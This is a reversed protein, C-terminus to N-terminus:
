RNWPDWLIYHQWYINVADARGSHVVTPNVGAINRLQWSWLDNLLALTMNWSSTFMLTWAVVWIIWMISVHTSKNDKKNDEIMNTKDAFIIAIFQAIVCKKSLDMYILIPIYIYIDTCRHTYLIYIHYIYIFIFISHHNLICIIFLVVWNSIEESERLIAEMFHAKTVM